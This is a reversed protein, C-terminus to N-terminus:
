ILKIEKSFKHFKLSKIDEKIKKIIAKGKEDKVVKLYDDDEVNFTDGDKCIKHNLSYILQGFRLDPSEMWLVKLEKLFPEIRNIDRM